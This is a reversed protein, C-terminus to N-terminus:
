LKPFSPDLSHTLVRRPRFYRAYCYVSREYCRFHRGSKPGACNYSAIGLIPPSGPTSPDSATGFGNGVPVSSTEWRYGVPLLCRTRPRSTTHALTRDTRATRGVTGCPEQDAQFEPDSTRRRPRNDGGQAGQCAVDDSESGSLATEYHRSRDLDCTRGPGHGNDVGVSCAPGFALVRAGSHGSGSLGLQNFAPQDEAREIEFPATLCGSCSSTCRWGHELPSPATIPAIPTLFSHMRKELSIHKHREAIEAEPLNQQLLCQRQVRGPASRRKLARCAIGTCDWFGQILEAGRHYTVWRGRGQM